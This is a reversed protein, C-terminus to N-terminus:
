NMASQVEDDAAWIRACFLEFLLLMWDGDGTANDVTSLSFSPSHQSSFNKNLVNVLGEKKGM